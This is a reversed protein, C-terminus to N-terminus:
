KPNALSQGGHERKINNTNLMNILYIIVSFAGSVILLLDLVDIFLSLSLYNHWMFDKLIAYVGQINVIYHMFAALLNVMAYFLLLTSNFKICLRASLCTILAYIICCSYYYIESPYDSISLMLILSLVVIMIKVIALKM